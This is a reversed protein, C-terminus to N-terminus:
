FTQWETYLPYKMWSLKVISITWPLHELLMDFSQHEVNLSWSDETRRLLGSRQLFSSRIGDTSTNGLVSWYNITSQLVTEAEERDCEQLVGVGVLLPTEPELGLLIKILGLEYEYIEEQGRALFHLLAAARPMQTDAIAHSNTKKIGTAEFLPSIFPHILVLGAYNVFLSFRDNQETFDVVPNVAEDSFDTEFKRDQNDLDEEELLNTSDLNLEPHNFENSLRSRLAEDNLFNIEPNEVASLNPDPRPRDFNTQTQFLTATVSPLADVLVQRDIGAQTLIRDLSMSFGNSPIQESSVRSLIAAVLQSRRPHNLQIQTSESVFGMVEIITIKWETSLRDLLPDIIALAQSRTLLQLLRFYFAATEARNSLYNILQSRQNSCTEKLDVAIESASASSAQWPLSGTQLYHMLIEFQNQQATTERLVEGSQSITTLPITTLDLSRLQEQLQQQILEPLIDLLEQESNVKIHLELKPIHIIRDSGAIEDFTSEFVPILTDQWRDRLNKRM